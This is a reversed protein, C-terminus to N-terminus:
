PQTEGNVETERRPHAAPTPTTETWERYRFTGTHEPGTRLDPARDAGTYDRRVGRVLVSEEGIATIRLQSWVGVGDAWQEHGRVHTGVTWGNLACTEADTRGRKM